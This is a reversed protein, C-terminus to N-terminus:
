KQKYFAFSYNQFLNDFRKPCIRFRNALVDSPKRTCSQNIFFIAAMTNLM